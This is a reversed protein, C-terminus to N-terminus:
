RYAISGRKAKWRDRANAAHEKAAAYVLAAQCLREKADIANADISDVGNCNRAYNEAADFLAKETVKVGPM